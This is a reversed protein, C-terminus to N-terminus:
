KVEGKFTDIYLCIVKKWDQRDCFNIAYNEFEQENMDCFETDNHHNDQWDAIFDGRNDYAVGDYELFEGVRSAGFDGIFAACKDESVVAGDVFPVIPLDPHAEALGIFIKVKTNM